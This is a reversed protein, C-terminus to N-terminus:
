VHLCVHLCSLYGHTCWPVRAQVDLSYVKTTEFDLAAGPLVYFMGTVPTIGFVASGSTGAILSFVFSAQDAADEDFASV